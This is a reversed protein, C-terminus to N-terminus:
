RGVYGCVCIFLSSFVHGDCVEHIRTEVLRNLRWNVGHLFLILIHQM